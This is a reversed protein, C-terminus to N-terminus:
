KCYVNYILFLYIQINGMYFHRSSKLVSADDAWTVLEVQVKTDEPSPSPLLHRALLSTEVEVQRRDGLLEWLAPSAGPRAELANCWERSHLYLGREQGSLCCWACGRELYRSSVKLCPPRERQLPPNGKYLYLAQGPPWSFQAALKRQCM